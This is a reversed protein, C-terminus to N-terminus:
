PKPSTFYNKQFNIKPSKLGSEKFRKEIEIKKIDPEVPDLTAMIGEVITSFRNFPFGIILEDEGWGAHHRTGACFLSVNINNSEFPFATCESCVAQNGSMKITTNYGYFYTYGQMIRMGNYPNTIILVVDPDSSFKEVPKVMIGYARHSCFTTSQQVNKSIVLDRYLGLSNYFRGSASLEDPEVIGLAKAAGNCGFNVAAAKTSHGASASKVMVCYPIKGTIQQADAANFEDENFLFKMATIRRDLKLACNAQQLTARIDFANM